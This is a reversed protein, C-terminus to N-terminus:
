IIKNEQGTKLLNWLGRINFHFTDMMGRCIADDISYRLTLVNLNQDISIYYFLFITKDTCKNFTFPLTQVSFISYGNMVSGSIPVQHVFYIYDHFCSCLELKILALSSNTAKKQEINLSTWYYYRFLLLKIFM